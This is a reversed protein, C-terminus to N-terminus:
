PKTEDTQALTDLTIERTTLAARIQDILYPGRSQGLLKLTYKKQGVSPFLWPISRAEVWKDAGEVLMLEDPKLLGFTALQKLDMPAFPGVKENNRAIFWRAAAMNFLRSTLSPGDM